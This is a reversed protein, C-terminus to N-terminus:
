LSKGAEKYYIAPNASHQTSNKYQLGPNKETLFLLSPPLARPSFVLLLLLLLRTLKSMQMIGILLGARSDKGLTSESSSDKRRCSTAGAERRGESLNILERGAFDFRTPFPSYLCESYM